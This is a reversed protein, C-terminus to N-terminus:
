AQAKILPIGAGRGTKVIQSDRMMIVFSIDFKLM